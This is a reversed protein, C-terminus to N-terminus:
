AMVDLFDVWCGDSQSQKAFGQLCYDQMVECVKTTLSPQAKCLRAECGVQPCDLLTAVRLM